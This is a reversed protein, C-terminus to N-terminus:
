PGCFNGQLFVWLWYWYFALPFLALVSVLSNPSIHVTELWKLGNIVDMWNTRRVFVVVQLFLDWLSFIVLWHSFTSLYFFTSVPNFSSTPFATFGCTPVASCRLHESQWFLCKLKELSGAFSVTSAPPSPHIYYIRAHIELASGCFLLTMLKTLINEAMNFCRFNLLYCIKFFEKSLNWTFITYPFFM